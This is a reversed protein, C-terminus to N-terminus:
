TMEFCTHYKKNNPLQSKNNKIVPLPHASHHCVNVLKHQVVTTLHRPRTLLRVLDRQGLDLDVLALLIQDFHLGQFQGIQGVGLADNQLLDPVLQIQFYQIRGLVAGARM